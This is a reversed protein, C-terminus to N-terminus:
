LNLFYCNNAKEKEYTYNFKKKILKTIIPSVIKNWAGHRKKVKISMFVGTQQNLLMIVYVYDVHM